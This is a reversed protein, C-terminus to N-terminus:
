RLGGTTGGTLSSASYNMASSPANVVTPEYKQAQLWEHKLQKSRILEQAQQQTAIPTPAGSMAAAGHATRM